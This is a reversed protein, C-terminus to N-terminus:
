RDNPTIAKQVEAVTAGHRRVVLEVEGVAYPGLQVSGVPRALRGDTRGAQTIASSGGPGRTRISLQWDLPQASEASVRAELTVQQPSRIMDLHAAVDTGMM